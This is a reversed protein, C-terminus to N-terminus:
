LSGTVCIYIRMQRICSIDSVIRFASDKKLFQYANLHYFYKGSKRLKYNMSLKLLELVRFNKQAVLIRDMHGYVSVIRGM